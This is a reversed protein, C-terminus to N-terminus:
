TIYNFVPQDVPSKIIIPSDIFQPQHLPPFLFDQVDDILDYFTHGQEIFYRDMRKGIDGGKTFSLGFDITFYVTAIIRTQPILSLIAMTTHTVNSPKFGNIGMDILGFGIANWGLLRGGRRMIKEFKAITKKDLVFDGIDIITRGFAKLRLPIGADGYMARKSFTKVVPKTFNENISILRGSWKRADEAVKLYDINRVGTEIDSIMVLKTMLPNNINHMALDIPVKISRSISALNEIYNLDICANDNTDIYVQLSANSPITEIEGNEPNLFSSGSRIVQKMEKALQNRYGTTEPSIFLDFGTTLYTSKTMHCAPAFPFFVSAPQGSIVITPKRQALGVGFIYADEVSGYM